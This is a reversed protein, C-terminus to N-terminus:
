RLWILAAMRGSIGDRRHSFFRDSDTHTCFGGGHVRTIGCGRLRQRALEYLDTTWKGRNGPRFASAAGQDRSVFASRVEDGVEFAEPGIAPGLWALIREPPTSMASATNELVGAALGRWGAHAAAVVAGDDSALLVPLCDAMQIACVIGAARTFSADAETTESSRAADVVTSAHVQTLWRPADPLLRTLSERNSAVRAPDDGVRIGLNLTAYPSESCGGLRTTVLARVRAPAPWEPIICDGRSLM